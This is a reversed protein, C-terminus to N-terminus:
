GDDQTAEDGQEGSRSRGERFARVVEEVSAHAREARTRASLRLNNGIDVFALLVCIGLLGIAGMWVLVFARESARPDILSFGAALLPLTVLMVWGNALRIRKRSVPQDSRETASLHAAVALMMLGALPVILVPPLIGPTNM